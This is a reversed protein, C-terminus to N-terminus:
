FLTRAKRSELWSKAEASEKARGEAMYAQALRKMLVASEGYHARVEELEASNRAAEM